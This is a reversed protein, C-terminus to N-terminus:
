GEHKRLDNKVEIVPHGIEVDLRRRTGDKTPVELKAVQHPELAVGGTTLLAYIDGQLDAETRHPDRAALSAVIKARIDAAIM